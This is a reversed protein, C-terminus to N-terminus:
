RNGAKEDASSIIHREGDIDYAIENGDIIFFVRGDKIPISDLMEKTTAIPQMEM